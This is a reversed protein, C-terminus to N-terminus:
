FPLLCMQLVVCGFIPISGVGSLYYMDWVTSLTCWINNVSSSRCTRKPLKQAHGILTGRALVMKGQKNSFKPQEKIMDDTDNSHDECIGGITPAMTTNAQQEQYTRHAGDLWRLYCWTRPSRYRRNNVCTTLTLFLHGTLGLCSLQLLSSVFAL